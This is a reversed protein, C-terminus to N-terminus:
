RPAMLGRAIRVTGWTMGPQSACTQPSCAGKALARRSAGPDILELTEGRHKQSEAHHSLGEDALERIKSEIKNIAEFHRDSEGGKALHGGLFVSLVVVGSALDLICGCCSCCCCCCAGVSCCTRAINNAPQQMGYSEFIARSPAATHRGAQRSSSPPIWWRRGRCAECGQSM